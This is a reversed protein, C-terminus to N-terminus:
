LKGKEIYTKATHEIHGRVEGFVSEVEVRQKAQMIWPQAQVLARPSLHELEAVASALDNRRNLYFTANNLRAADDVPSSPARLAMGERLSFAAVCRAYISAALDHEAHPVHEPLFTAQRVATEVETNFNRKLTSLSAIAIQSSQSLTDLPISTALAHLKKDDKSASVLKSWESQLDAGTKPPPLQQSALTSPPSVFLPQKHEDIRLSEELSILLNTLLHMREATKEIATSKHLERQLRAIEKRQVDLRSLHSQVEPDLEKNISAAQKALVADTAKELDRRQIEMEEALIRSWEKEKSVIVDTSLTALEVMETSEITKRTEHEQAELRMPLQRNFESEAAHFVADIRPALHAALQRQVDATQRIVALEYDRKFEAIIQLREKAEAISAPPSAWKPAQPLDPLQLGENVFMARLAQIATTAPLPQGGVSRRSAAALVEPDVASPTAAALREIPVLHDLAAQTQVLRLADLLKRLEREERAWSSESSATAAAPAAAPAVAPASTKEAAEAQAKTPSLISPVGSSSSSSAAAAAATASTLEPPANRAAFPNPRNRKARDAALAEPGRYDDIAKQIEAIAADIWGRATLSVHYVIVLTGLLYIFRRTWPRDPRAPRTRLIPLGNEPQQQQQESTQGREAARDARSESELMAKFAAADMSARADGSANPDGVSVQANAPAAARAVAAADRAAGERELADVAAQSVPFPQPPKPLPVSPTMGVATRQPRSGPASGFTAWRRAYPAVAPPAAAVRPAAAATAQRRAVSSAIRLM